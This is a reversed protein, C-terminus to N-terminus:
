NWWIQDKREGVIKKNKKFDRGKRCTETKTNLLRVNHYDESKLNRDSYKNRVNKNENRQNLYLKLWTSVNKENNYYFKM